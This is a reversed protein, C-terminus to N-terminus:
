GAYTKGGHLSNLIVNVLHPDADNCLKINIEGMSIEVTHSNDLYLPMRDQVAVAPRSVEEDCIDIKVVEQKSTLDLNNINNRKPVAYAQNRLREAAKSFTSRSIGNMICWEDDSLGSQRCQTILEFWEALSRHKQKKAM